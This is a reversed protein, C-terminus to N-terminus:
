RSVHQTHQQSWLLLSQRDVVMIVKQSFLTATHTYQQWNIATLPRQYGGCPGDSIVAAHTHTHQKCVEQTTPTGQPLVPCLCLKVQKPQGGSAQRCGQAGM